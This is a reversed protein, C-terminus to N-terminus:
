DKKVPDILKKFLGHYASDYGTAVFKSKFGECHVPVIRASLQGDLEDILADIDDGIIGPVCSNGIVIADPRYEQEAYVIAERM